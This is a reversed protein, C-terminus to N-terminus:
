GDLMVESKDVRGVETYMQTQSTLRHCRPEACINMWFSAFVSLTPNWPVGTVSEKDSHVCLTYVDNDLVKLRRLSLLSQEWRGIQWQGKSHKEQTPFVAGSMSKEVRITQCVCTGLHNKDKLM